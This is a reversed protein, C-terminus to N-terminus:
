YGVKIKTKQKKNKKLKTTKNLCLYFMCVLWRSMKKPAFSPMPTPSESPGQAAREVIAKGNKSSVNHAIGASENCILLVALENVNHVLFKWFGSPLMHKTKKNSGYDINPM